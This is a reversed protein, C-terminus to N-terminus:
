QTGGDEFDVMFDLDYWLQMTEGEPYELAASPVRTVTFVKTGEFLDDIESEAQEKKEASPFRPVRGGNPRTQYKVDGVEADDPLDEDEQWKEAYQDVIESKERLLRQAEDEITRANSIVAENLLRTDFVHERMISSLRRYLAPIRQKSLEVKM